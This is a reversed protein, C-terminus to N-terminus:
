FPLMALVQGVAALAVGALEYRIGGTAVHRSLRELRDSEDKFQGAVEAIEKRLAAAEDVQRDGLDSLRTMLDRTRLDLEELAARTLADAPLMRYQSRGRANMSAASSGHATGALAITRRPRRLIRDLQRRAAASLRRETARLRRMFRAAADDEARHERWTTVLGIGIVLGGSLQLAVGAVNIGTM